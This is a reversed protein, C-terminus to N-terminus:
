ELLESIDLISGDHSVSLSDGFSESENAKTIWSRSFLSSLVDLANLSHLLRRLALFDIM